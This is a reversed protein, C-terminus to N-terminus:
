KDYVVSISMYCRPDRAVYQSFMACCSYVFHADYIKVEIKLGHIEYHGRINNVHRM